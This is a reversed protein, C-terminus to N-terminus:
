PRSHASSIVGSCCPVALRIIGPVLRSSIVHSACIAAPDTSSALGSDSIYSLNM